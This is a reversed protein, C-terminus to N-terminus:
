QQAPVQFGTGRATRGKCLRVVLGRGGAGQGRWVVQRMAGGALTCRRMGLGWVGWLAWLQRSYM